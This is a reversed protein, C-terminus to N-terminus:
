LYEKLRKRDTETMGDDQKDRSSKEWTRVAAKWDKMKNRGVMWGKSAYFDVFTEADVNPKGARSRTYEAVEEVTPATFRKPKSQKAEPEAVSDGEASPMSSIHQKSDPKSDPIPQVSETKGNGNKDFPLDLLTEDMLAYWKTRDYRVANYNGAIVAGQDELSKLVRAIKRANWFPFLKVYAKATNFTWTRGDHQNKGNAKNKRLWYVMNHLM